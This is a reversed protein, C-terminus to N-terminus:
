VMRFVGSPQRGTVAQERRRALLRGASTADVASNKARALKSKM